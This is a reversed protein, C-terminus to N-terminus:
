DFNYEQEMKELQKLLLFMFDRDTHQLIWKLYHYDAQKDSTKIQKLLTYLQKLEISVNTKSM